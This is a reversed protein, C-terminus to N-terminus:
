PVSTNPNGYIYNSDPIFLNFEVAESQDQTDSTAPQQKTDSTAISGLDPKNLICIPISGYKVGNIINSNTEDVVLKTNPPCLFQAPM